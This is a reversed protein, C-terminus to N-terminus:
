KKSTQVIATYPFIGPGSAVMNEIYWCSHFYDSLFDGLSSYYQFGM